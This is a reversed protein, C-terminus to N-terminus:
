VLAALILWTLFAAADALAGGAWTYRFDREDVVGGTEKDWVWEKFWGVFAGTMAGAVWWGTVHGVVMAPVFGIIFGAILHQKLDARM